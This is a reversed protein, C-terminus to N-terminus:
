TSSYNSFWVMGKNQRLQGLVVYNELTAVEKDTCKLKNEEVKVFDHVIENPTENQREVSRSEKPVMLKRFVVHYNNM